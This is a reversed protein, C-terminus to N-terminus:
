NDGVKPFNGSKLDGYISILINYDDVFWDGTNAGNYQSTRLYQRFMDYAKTADDINYYAESWMEPMSDHIGIGGNYIQIPGKSYVFSIEKAKRETAAKLLLATHKFYNGLRSQLQDNNESTDPKIRWLNNEPYFPDEIYNKLIDSIKIFDMSIGKRKNELQLVLKKNEEKLNVSLTDKKYVLMINKGKNAFIWRDNEYHGSGDVLTFSSDPFFSYMLGVKVMLQQVAEYALIDGENKTKENVNNIKTLQWSGYLQRKKNNQTTKNEDNKCSLLLILSLTLFIISQKM